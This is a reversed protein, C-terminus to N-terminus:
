ICNNLREDGTVVLCLSTTRKRAGSDVHGHYRRGAINSLNCMIWRAAAVLWRITIDLHLGM